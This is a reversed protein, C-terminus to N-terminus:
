HIEKLKVDVKWSDMRHDYPQTVEYVIYKRGKYNYPIESAICHLIVLSEPKEYPLTLTIIKM